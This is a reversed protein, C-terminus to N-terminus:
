CSVLFTLSFGVRPAINPINAKFSDFKSQAATDGALIGTVPTGIAPFASLANTV